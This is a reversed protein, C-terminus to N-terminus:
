DEDYIIKVGDKFIALRTALDSITEISHKVGKEIQIFDGTKAIFQNEYFGDIFVAFEGEMILWTECWNKHHHLDVHDGKKSRLIHCSYDKNNALVMDKIEPHNSLINPINLVVNM